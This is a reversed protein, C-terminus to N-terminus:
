LIFLRPNRKQLGMPSTKKSLESAKFSDSALVENNQLQDGILLTDQQFKSNTVQIKNQDKM